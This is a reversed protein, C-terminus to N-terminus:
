IRTDSNRILKITQSVTEDLTPTTYQEHSSHNTDQKHRRGNTEQDSGTDIEM